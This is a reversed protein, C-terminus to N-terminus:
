PPGSSTERESPQVGALRGRVGWRPPSQAAVEPSASASMASRRAEGSGSRRPAALGVQKTTKEVATYVEGLEAAPATTPNDPAEGLQPGPAGRPKVWAVAGAPRRRVADAAPDLAARDDAALGQPFAVRASTGFSM